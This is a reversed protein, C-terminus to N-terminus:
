EGAESMEQFKNTISVIFLTRGSQGLKKEIEEVRNKNLWIFHSKISLTSEDLLNKANAIIQRATIEFVSEKLDGKIFLVFEGSGLMALHQGNWAKKIRKLKALFDEFVTAKSDKKLPICKLFLIGLSDESNKLSHMEKEFYNLLEGLGNSEVEALTDEKKQKSDDKSQIDSLKLAANAVVYTLMIEDAISVVKDNKSELVIVLPYSNNRAPPTVAFLSRLELNEPENEYFRRQYPDTSIKRENIVSVKGALLEYLLCKVHVEFSVGKFDEKQEGVVESIQWIDKDQEHPTIIMLRDFRFNDQLVKSLDSILNGKSSSNFLSLTEKLIGNFLSNERDLKFNRDMIRLVEETLTALERLEMCIEDDFANSNTSDITIYGHVKGNGSVVAGAMSGIIQEETRYVDVPIEDAENWNFEKKSFYRNNRPVSLSESLMYPSNSLKLNFGEENAAWYCISLINLNEKELYSRFLALLKKVFADRNVNGTEYCTKEQELRKIASGEQGSAVVFEVPVTLTDTVKQPNGRPEKHM